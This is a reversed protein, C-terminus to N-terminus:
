GSESKLKNICQVLDPLKIQNLTKSGLQNKWWRLQLKRAHWDTPALKELEEDVYRDILETLTHKSAEEKEFYLGSEIEYEAQQAWKIALSKNKFSKTIVPIGQKRIRVRYTTGRKGIKKSITAM